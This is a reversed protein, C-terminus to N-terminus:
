RSRVIIAALQAVTPEKFLDLISVEVHIHASDAGAGSVRPAFRWGPRLFEDFAGVTAVGLVECFLSAVERETADRPAVYTPQLQGALKTELGTRQVKGTAGAPIADVIVLRSPIKFEALRGFLSARIEDATATAGDKLVVAAAVNEGLTAHHVGFTAALRVAGHELM